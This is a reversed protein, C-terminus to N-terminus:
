FLRRSRLIIPSGFLKKLGCGGAAAELVRSLSPNRLKRHIVMPWFFEPRYVPPAYGNNEFEGAIRARDFLTYTRTNGEMAKKFMERTNVFGLDKYSVM